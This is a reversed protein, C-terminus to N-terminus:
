NHGDSAAACSDSLASCYAHIEARLGVGVGAVSRSSSNDYHKKLRLGERTSVYGFPRGPEIHIAFAWDAQIERYAPDAVVAKAGSGDEEAPQFMLIVRGQAVPQRSMM